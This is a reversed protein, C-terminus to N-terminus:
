TWGTRWRSAPKVSGSSSIAITMVIVIMDTSAIVIMVLM